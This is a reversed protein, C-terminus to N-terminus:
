VADYNLTIDAVKAFTHESEPGFRQLLLEGFQVAKPPQEKYMWLCLHRGLDQFECLMQRFVDTKQLSVIKSAGFWFIQSRLPDERVRETIETCALQLLECVIEESIVSYPGLSQTFRWVCYTQFAPAMLREGMAYLRALTIYESYHIVERSLISQDRYMYEVFFGFLEPDEDEIEITRDEAEKFNGKLSNAFRRSEVLLLDSHLYYRKSRAVTM